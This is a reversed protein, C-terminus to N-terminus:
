GAREIAHGGIATLLLCRACRGPEKAGLRDDARGGSQARRLRGGACAGRLGGATKLTKAALAAWGGVCFLDQRKGSALEREHAPIEPDGKFELLSRPVHMAGRVSRTKEIESQDRVDVFM